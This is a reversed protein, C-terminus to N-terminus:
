VARQYNVDDVDDDDDDHVIIVYAYSCNKDKNMFSFIVRATHRDTWANVRSATALPFLKIKIYMIYFLCTLYTSM